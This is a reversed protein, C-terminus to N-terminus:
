PLTMNHPAFIGDPNELKIWVHLTWLKFETNIEWVDADGKFGEPVPPPNDLDEIPVAYEVAVFKLKNNDGPVYLLLEPKEVEFKDDLLSANLYHYGMHTRYGTVETDYGDHGAHEIFDYPTTAARLRDVEEQWLPVEKDDDDCSILSSIVILFLTIFYIGRKLVSREDACLLTEFKTVSEVNSFRWSKVGKKM